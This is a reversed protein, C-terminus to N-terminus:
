SGPGQLTRSPAMRGPRLLPPLRPFSSSYRTPLGRSNLLLEANLRKIIKEAEEFRRKEEDSLAKADASPALEYQKPQKLNEQAAATKIDGLVLSSAAISLSIVLPRIM